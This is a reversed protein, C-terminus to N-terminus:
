VLEEEDLDEITDEDPIPNMVEYLDTIAGQKLADATPIILPSFTPWAEMLFRLLQMIREFRAAREEETLRRFFRRQRRLTGAENTTENNTENTQPV